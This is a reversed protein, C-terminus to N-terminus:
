ICIWKIGKQVSNVLVSYVVRMGALLKFEGDIAARNKRYHEQAVQGEILLASRDKM